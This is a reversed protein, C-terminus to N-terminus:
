PATDPLNATGPPPFTITFTTGEGTHSNVTITGHHESIIQKVTFLGLGTGKGPEKTTFLPEFINELNEEPIGTGTDSIQLVIGQQPPQSLSVTLTGGEPMADIANLCLNMIVQQLRGSHIPFIVAEQPPDWQLHINELRLLKLLGITEYLLIGLDVKDPEGGRPRAFTLIQRAMQIATETTEKIASLHESHEADYQGAPGSEDALQSFGLIISLMNKLDHMTGAALTGMLEMRQSMILQRNRAELQIKSARLEAKEETRRIRSRFFVFLLFLCLLISLGIFWTTEWFPPRITFALAAPVSSEVGDNNVAKVRFRYDRPPLYPYFVSRGGTEIWKNDLGELRYKYTVSEPASFCIGTFDFRIYNRLYSLEKIKHLPVDEELVKVGTIHIPPPLRNAKVPPPSFVILGQSSGLWFEGKGDVFLTYWTNTPLRHRLATYTRFTKGDFCSLGNHTGVWLNGRLDERAFTCNSSPLGQHVAYNTFTGDRYRSIGDQTSIWLQGKSDEFLDNVMNDPLGDRTTYHVLNGGSYQFLGGTSSFWMRGQKDEEISLITFESTDPSLPSFKGNKFVNVGKKTGAWIEGNRREKLSFTLNSSLGQQLTYNNFRGGNFVSVGEVTAVWINGKGDAILRNIVISILGDKENYTKFTSGDYKSLGKDTIIWYHGDRDEVTWSILNGALGDKETFTRINVTSLCSVGGYSGVWINGEQDQLLAYIFNDQLGNLTSYSHIKSGELRNLGKYTGVWLRGANDETIHAVINHSLGQATSYHTLTHGDHCYLGTDMGYWMNGRSDRYVFNVNEEPVAHLYANRISRGNVICQVGAATAVWLKEQKDLYLSRVYQSKLGEVRSCRSLEKGELRFLGNGTGAWLTGKANTVISTVPKNGNPLTLHRAFRGDKRRCLVGQITGLWLTGDKAAMMSKIYNGPLGDSKFFKKFEKGDFRCLGNPTSLWLYGRTDQALGTVRSDPLGHIDTYNRFPLSQAPALAPIVFLLLLAAPFFTKQM